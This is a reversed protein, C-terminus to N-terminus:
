VGSSCGFVEWVVRERCVMQGPDYVSVISPDSLKRAEFVLSNMKAAEASEGGNKLATALSELVQPLAVPRGVFFPARGYVNQWIQRLRDLAEAETEIGAALPNYILTASQNLNM